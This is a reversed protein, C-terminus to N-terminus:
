ACPVWVTMAGPTRNAWAFYPIARLPLSHRELDRKSRYFDEESAFPRSVIGEGEIITVDGLESVHRSTLEVEDPLVLDFVSAQHDADEFCYVVPGRQLAIQGRNTLVATQAVMREIPMSFDLEIVDGAKWARRLILYGKRTSSEAKTGNVSIKTRKCWGPM